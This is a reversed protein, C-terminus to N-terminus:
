KASGTAIAIAARAKACAADHDDDHLMSQCAALLDAVAGARYHHACDDLLARAFQRYGWSACFGRAGDPMGKIITDAIFDIREDTLPVPDAAQLALEAAAHRAAKHGNKYGYVFQHHSDAPAEECPLNMIKAHLDASM